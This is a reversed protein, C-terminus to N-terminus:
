LTTGTLANRGTTKGERFSWSFSCKTLRALSLLAVDVRVHIQEISAVFSVM